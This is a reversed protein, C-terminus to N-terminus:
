MDLYPVHTECTFRRYKGYHSSPNCLHDEHQEKSITIPKGIVLGQPTSAMREKLIAHV